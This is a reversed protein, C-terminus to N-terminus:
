FRKKTPENGIKGETLENLAQQMDADLLKLQEIQQEIDYAQLIELTQKAQYLRGVQFATQPKEFYDIVYELYKILKEM